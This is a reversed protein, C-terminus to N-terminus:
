HRCCHSRRVRLLRYIYIYTVGILFSPRRLLSHLGTEYRRGVRKNKGHTYIYISLSPAREIFLGRRKVAGRSGPNLRM